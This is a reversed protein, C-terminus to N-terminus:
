RSTLFYKLLCTASVTFFGYRVFFFLTYRSSNVAAGLVTLLSCPIFIFSVSFAPRLHRLFSPFCFIQYAKHRDPRNQHRRGKIETRQFLPKVLVLIVGVIGRGTGVTKIHFISFPHVAFGIPFLKHHKGSLPKLVSQYFLHLGPIHMRGHIVPHEVRRGGKHGAHKRFPDAQRNVKKKM